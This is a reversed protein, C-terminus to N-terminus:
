ILLYPKDHPFIDKNLRVKCHILNLNFVKDKNIEVGVINEYMINSKSDSLNYLLLKKIENILSSSYVKLMNKDM